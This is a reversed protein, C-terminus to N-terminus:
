TGSSHGHASSHRRSRRIPRSQICRRIHSPRPVSGCHMCCPGCPLSGFFFLARQIPTFRTVCAANHVLSLSSLCACRTHGRAVIDLLSLLLADPSRLGIRTLAAAIVAAAHPTFPSQEDHPVSGFGLGAFCSSLLGTVSFPCKGPDLATRLASILSPPLRSFTGCLVWVVHVTDLGSLQSAHSASWTYVAELFPATKALIRLEPCSAATHAVSWALLAVDRPMMSSIQPSVQLALRSVLQASSHAAEGQSHQRLLATQKSAAWAVMAISRSSLSPLIHNPLLLMLRPAPIQSASFGWCLLALSQSRLSTLRLCAAPELLTLTEALGHHGKACGIAWSVTAIDQDSAADVNRLVATACQLLFDHSACRLKTVAWMATSADIPRCGPILTSM